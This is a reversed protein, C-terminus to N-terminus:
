AYFWYEAAYQVNFEAAMGSCNAPPTGGATNLRYIEAISGVEGQAEHELKLWAVDAPSPAPVSATKKAHVFGYAGLDFTPTTANSFYHHGVPVLSQPISPLAVKLAAPPIENFITPNAGAICTANYLSALAGIAVPVSAATSDACTYNQTGRGIAILYVKLGTTPPPLPTTAAPQVPTGCSAAFPTRSTKPILNKFNPFDNPAGFNIPSASVLSCLASVLLLTSHMEAILLILVASAKTQFLYDKATFLPQHDFTSM